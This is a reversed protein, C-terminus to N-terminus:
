TRAVGICKYIYWLGVHTTHCAIKKGFHLALERFVFNNLLNSKNKVNRVHEEEEDDRCTKMTVSFAVDKPNHDKADVSKKLM